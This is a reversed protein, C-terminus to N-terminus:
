PYSASTVNFVVRPVVTENGSGSDPYIQSIHITGDPLTLNGDEKYMPPLTGDPSGDVRAGDWMM